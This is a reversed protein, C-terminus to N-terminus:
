ASGAVLAISGEPLRVFRRGQDRALITRINSEKVEMLDALERTSRPGDRLHQAMREPQSLAALLEPAEIETRRFRIPGTEGDYEIALGIPRHKPGDNFKVHLLALEVRSSVSSQERRLEWASRAENLKYVSGYPRAIAGESTVQDGRVHDIVLSSVRLARLARTLQLAGENADVGERASPIAKGASDLIVLGIQHEDVYSALETLMDPLARSCRRYHLEPPDIGTGRAIRAVRDNWAEARAEWDLVLVGAQRPIWGPVVSRGTTVSVGIAAALTTKGVAFPAYLWTPDLLPAIPALQYELSSQVPRRGVREIPEGRREEVMVAVCFQELLEEYDAGAGRDGLYKATTRRAPLSSLNFRGQYLPLEAIGTGQRRGTVRLECSLEGRAERVREARFEVGVDDHRAVYGLGVRQLRARTAIPVVVAGGNQRGGRRRGSAPEPELDFSWDDARDHSVAADATSSCSRM